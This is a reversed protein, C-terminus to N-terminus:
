SLVSNSSYSDLTTTPLTIVGHLRTSPVLTESSCVTKMELFEVSYISANHEESVNTRAYWIVHKM